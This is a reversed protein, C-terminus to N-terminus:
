CRASCNAGPADLDHVGVVDPLLELFVIGFAYDVQQLPVVEVVAYVRGLWADPVVPDFRDDPPAEDAM